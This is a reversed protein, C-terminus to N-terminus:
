YLRSARMLSELDKEFQGKSDSQSAVNEISNNTTAKEPSSSRKRKGIISTPEPSMSQPQLASGNLTAMASM